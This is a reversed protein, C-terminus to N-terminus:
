NLYKQRYEERERSREEVSKKLYGKLVRHSLYLGDTDRKLDFGAARLDKSLATISKFVIKDCATNIVTILRNLYLRNFKESYYEPLMTHDKIFESM